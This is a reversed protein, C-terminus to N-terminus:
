SYKGQFIHERSAAKGSNQRRMVLFLRYGACHMPDYACKGGPHLIEFHNNDVIAALITCADDEISDGPSLGAKFHYVVGDILAIASSQHTAKFRNRLVQDKEHIRIPLKVDMIQLTEEWQKFFIISDQPVTHLALIRPHALQVGPAPFYQDTHDETNVHSIYIACELEIRGLKEMFVAQLSPPGHDIGLNEIFKNACAIGIRLDAHMVQRAFATARGASLRCYNHTGKAFQDNEGPFPM